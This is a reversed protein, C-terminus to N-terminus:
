TASGCRTSRAGRRGSFCRERRAPAGPRSVSFTARDSASPIGVARNAPRAWRLGNGNGDTCLRFTWRGNVLDFVLGVSRTSAVAQLRAARFRTAMYGAAHRARSADIVEATAPMVLGALLVVIALAVVLDVASFGREGPPNPALRAAPRRRRGCNRM